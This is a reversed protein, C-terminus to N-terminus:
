RMIVWKKDKRGIFMPYMFRGDESGPVQRIIPQWDPGLCEIMRGDAVLRLDIDEDEPTEFLWEPKDRQMELLRRLMDERERVSLDYARAVEIFRDRSAGLIPDADGDELATKIQEVIDMAEGSTTDDLRLKPGDQWHLPGFMVRLNKKGRVWRPFPISARSLRGQEDSARWALQIIPEGTGDMAMAGVKYRSLRVICVAEDDPELGQRPSGPDDGGEVAAESSHRFDRDTLGKLESPASPGERVTGRAPEKKGAAEDEDEEKIDSFVEKEDDGPEDEKGLFSDLLPSSPPQAGEAPRPGESPKKAASPSDGPNILVALENEGDILYEHVPRTFKRTPGLGCLGVPIDNIYIEVACSKTEAEVIIGHEELDLPM